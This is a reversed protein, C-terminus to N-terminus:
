IGYHIFSQKYKYFRDGLFRSECGDFELTCTELGAEQEGTTLCDHQKDKSTSAPKCSYCILELICLLFFFVCVCVCM